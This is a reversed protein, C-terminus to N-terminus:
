LEKELCCYLLLQQAYETQLNNLVDVYDQSFSVINQRAFKFNKSHVLCDNTIGYLFHFALRVSLFSTFSDVSALRDHIHVINIRAVAIFM